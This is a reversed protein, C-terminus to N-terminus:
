IFPRRDLVLRLPRGSRLQGPLVRQLEALACVAGFLRHLDGAGDDRDLDLALLFRAYRVAFTRLAARSEPERHGSQAIARSLCYVWDIEAFSVVRGLPYPDTAAIELCTDVLAAPAPHPERAHEFNFLYHFTGALHPFRSEGWRYPPAVRGRRWLGTEPDVERALWAFYRQQFADSAEGARVRAAYAGAGQHSAHWPDDRGALGDLFAELANAAELEDLATLRHRPGADFLELAAICHATTHLEHHTAERFWGTEPDQFSRLADVFAAREAAARPLCGLTYLLNAADASGYPNPAVDDRGPGPARWRAYLGPGRRHAAVLMEVRALWPTLDIPEADDGETPLGQM